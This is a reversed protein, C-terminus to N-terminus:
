VNQTPQPTLSPRPEATAAGHPWGRARRSGFGEAHSLVVARGAFSEGVHTTEWDHGHSNLAVTMYEGAFRMGLEGFDNKRDDERANVAGVISNLDSDSMSPGSHDNDGSMLTESEPGVAGITNVAGPRRGSVDVVELIKVNDHLRFHLM